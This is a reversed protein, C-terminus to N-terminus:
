EDNGTQADDSEKAPITLTFGKYDTGKNTTIKAVLRVKEEKDTQKVEGSKSDVVNNNSSEWTVDAGDATKYIYNLKNTVNYPQDVSIRDFSIAKFAETNIANLTIVLAWDSYDPASPITWTGSRDTKINSSILTYEGMRTNYWKATFSSDPRLKAVGSYSYTNSPVYAIITSSDENRKQFPSALGVPANDWVVADKDPVLEWWNIDEMFKKMNPLQAGAEKFLASFWPIPSTGWLQWRDNFDYTAQWLGEASYCFGVGGAMVSKWYAERTIYSELGHINEFYAEGEIFPTVPEYNYIKTWYTTEDPYVDHGLQTYNVDHWSLDETDQIYNPNSVDNHITNVHNYADIEDMHQAIEVWVKRPGKGAEGATYWMVPYAGYRANIYEAIRKFQPEMGSVLNHGWDLGLNAIMGKNTIYQIREDTNKFFDPNLDVFYHSIDLREGTESYPTIECIVADGGSEANNIKVRLFQATPNEAFDYEFEKGAFGQKPTTYVTTYHSQDDSVQIEFHWVDERGFLVRVKDVTKQQRWYIQVWQPYSPQAQWVTEDIGDFAHQSGRYENNVTSQEVVSSASDNYIIGKTWPYGGENYTGESFCDGALGIFFNMRYANYGQKERTDIITKYASDGLTPMNTKYLPMRSSLNMWGCDATYFFPTGDAYTLYRKGEMRQVFGHKYVELDGTYPTCVVTGRRGHLGSDKINTSSTIYTWNGEETPAFRIRWINEGDYFAQRKIVTGKESIFTATIDVDLYPHEYNETSRLEIEAAHWTEASVIKIPETEPYVSINFTKQESASGKSIVATLVATKVNSGDQKIHGDNTIVSADSSSWKISTYKKSDELPLEIDEVLYETKDLTLEDKIRKVVESDEPMENVVADFEKVVKSKGATMIATLHVTTSGSGHPPQIVRGDSDIIKPASSEWEVNILGNMIKKPLNIDSSIGTLNGMEMANAAEEIVEVDNYTEIETIRAFKPQTDPGCLCIVKLATATYLEELEYDVNKETNNDEEVVTEWKNNCYLQIKYRKLEYKDVLYMKIHNIKVAEDWTLTVYTGGGTMVGRDGSSWSNGFGNHADGDNLAAVNYVSPNNELCTAEAKAKLASNRSNAAADEANVIPTLMSIGIIVSLVYMMFIFKKRM